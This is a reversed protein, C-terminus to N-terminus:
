RFSIMSRHLRQKGLERRSLGILKAESDPPLHWFLRCCASCGFNFLVDCFKLALVLPGRDNFEGAPDAARLHKVYEDICIETKTQRLVVGYVSSMHSTDSNLNV